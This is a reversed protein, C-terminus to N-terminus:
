RADCVVITRRLGRDLREAGLSATRWNVGLQNVTDMDVPKSAVIM